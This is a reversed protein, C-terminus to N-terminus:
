GRRRKEVLPLTVDSHTVEPLRHWDRSRGKLQEGNTAMFFHYSERFGQNGFRSWATGPPYTVLHSDSGLAGLDLIRMMAAANFRFSEGALETLTELDRDTPDQDWHRERGVEENTYRVSVPLLQPDISVTVSGLGFPRGGGLHVAIREPTKTSLSALRQPALAALLAVVYPEPLADVTVTSTFSTGAPVLRALRSMRGQRQEHTAQYRPIAARQNLTSWQQAQADPNSHWYFKRGRIRANATRDQSGGWHGPMDHMPRDRSLRSPLDLYFMANGPRPTSLPALEVTRLRIGPESTAGSLNVHGAYSDQAGRGRGDGSTDAAGFTACSPCLRDNDVCPEFGKIRDLVRGRGATRWIQSLKLDTVMGEETKVWVIDRPFLFGTHLARRGLLQGKWTVKDFVRQGRWNERTPEGPPPKELRRRDNAGAHAQLFRTWVERGRETDHNLVATDETLMGVAMFYRGPSGNRKTPQRAGTDTLLFVEDNADLLGQYGDEAPRVLEITSVTEYEQRGLSVGRVDGYTRVVDGTTPPPSDRPWARRLDTAEMWAVSEPNCLQFEHPVGSTAGEDGVVVALTWGDHTHTAARYGPVFSADIVRLCGNFLAEHVSRVTGKISSGPIRISGDRRVWQQFDAIEENPLLLPTQLTWTVKIQGSFRQPRESVSSAPYRVTPLHGPAIDRPAADALPAFIYPNIFRTNM